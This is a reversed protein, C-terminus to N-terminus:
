AAGERAGHLYTQQGKLVALMADRSAPDLEGVWEAYLKKRKNSIHTPNLKDAKWRETIASWNETVVRNLDLDSLTEPAAEAQSTQIVTEAEAKAAKKAKWEKLRNIAEGLQQLAKAPEMDSEAKDHYLKYRKAHDETSIGTERLLIDYQDLVEFYTDKDELTWTFGGEEAYESFKVEPANSDGPRVVEANVVTEGPLQTKVAGPITEVETEDMMGLGCHALVTRRIAKTTAKLYANALAEGKLGSISVAGMNETVRGDPGKVRAHVLYIDDLRERQIIEVSLKHLNCLQQTCGANAYLVEKGNLVLLDFPKAAPDLGAQRCRFNYYEVKQRPELRKLDGNIVLSAVIDPNLTVVNSESRSNLQNSM